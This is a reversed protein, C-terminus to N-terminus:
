LKWNTLGDESVLETGSMVVAKVQEFEPGLWPCELPEDLLIIYTFIIDRTAVGAVIGFVPTEKDKYIYDPLRVRTNFSIPKHLTPQNM